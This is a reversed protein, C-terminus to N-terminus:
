ELNADRLDAHSLDADQLQCGSCAGTELPQVLNNINEGAHAVM